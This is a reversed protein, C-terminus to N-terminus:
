DCPNGCVKGGGHAPLGAILKGRMAAIAITIRNNQVRGAVTQNSAMPKTDGFSVAVLRNCNIGHQLLWHTVAMSRKEALAFNNAANGTNDTHGEIRLLTIHPKDTLYQAIYQLSAESEPNLSATGTKFSIPSPLILENGQLTYQQQAWVHCYFFSLIFTYFYKKM